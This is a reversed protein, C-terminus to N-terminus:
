NIFEVEWGHEGCIKAIEAEKFEDCTLESDNIRALVIYVRTDAVHFNHYGFLFEPWGYQYNDPYAVGNLSSDPVGCQEGLFGLCCQMGTEPIRLASGGASKGRRWYRRDVIFKNSATM